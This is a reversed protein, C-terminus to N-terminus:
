SRVFRYGETGRYIHKFEQALLSIQIATNPDSGNRNLQLPQRAPGARSSKIALLNSRSCINLEANNTAEVAKRDESPAIDDRTQQLDLTGM